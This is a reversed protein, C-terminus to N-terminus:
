RITALAAPEADLKFVSVEDLLNRAEDMLGDSLHSINEVAETIQAAARSQESTAQVIAAVERLYAVMGNFDKAMVGIEDQSRISLQQDLDGESIRGIASVVEGLPKLFHRLVFYVLLSLVLVIGLAMLLMRVIFDQIIGDITAKSFGV